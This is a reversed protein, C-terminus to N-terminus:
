LVSCQGDIAGTPPSKATTEVVGKQTVSVAHTTPIARGINEGCLNLSFGPRPQLTAQPYVFLLM